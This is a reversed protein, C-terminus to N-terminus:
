IPLQYAALIASLIAGIITAIVLGVVITLVPVLLTMLRDISHAVEQDFIDAIKMLMTELHGSREGVAVLKVALSPFHGSRGIPAALGKGEKVASLTDNISQRLVANSLSGQAIAIANPLSVGNTLLTGVTRALRATDMKAIMAGLLPLSLLWRDIVARSPPHHLRNNFWLAAVIGLIVLLWWYAEAAEGTAVVARTLWPLDAGATEFMPTFQPLVVILLVAVSAAAMILLLIPYVLASRVRQNLTESREMYDALRTLVDALANGAEGARVLSVYAQSFSSRHQDLADALTSGGQVNQLLTTFLQRQTKNTAVDVLFTLAEDVTMGANLLTAFERTMIALDRSTIRGSGFLPQHLWDLLRRQGNPSVGSGDALEIALPMQRRSRLQQVVASRDAAEIEGEVRDGDSGVARFFFRTM